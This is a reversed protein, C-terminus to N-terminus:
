LKKETDAVNKWGGTIRFPLARKANKNRRRDKRLAELLEIAELSSRPEAVCADMGNKLCSEHIGADYVTVLGCLLSPTFGPETRELQRIAQATSCIDYDSLNMSLLILDHRQLLHCQIAEAGSRVRDATFGLFGIASYMLGSEGHSNNVILIRM